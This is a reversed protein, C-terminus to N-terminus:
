PRFIVAIVASLVRGDTDTAVVDIINPGPELTVTTTFIGLDDVTLSVGNVSVVAQSGTRGSLRIDRDSVVSQDEPETVLLLFPQTPLYTVILVQSKRAGTPGTAIVEISNDGRSLTVVAEFDGNKDVAVAEGVVTITAGPTTNGHVIVADSRATSRDAPGRLNLSLPSPTATATPEPRPTPSPPPPAPPVTTPTPTPVPTIVRIPVSTLTATPVATPTVTATPTPTAPPAPAPVATATSTPTAPRDVGQGCGVLLLLLAVPLARVLVRGRNM